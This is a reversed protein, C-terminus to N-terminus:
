WDRMTIYHVDYIIDGMIVGIAHAPDCWGSDITWLYYTGHKEDNGDYEVDVHIYVSEGCNDKKLDSVTITTPGMCRSLKDNVIDKLVSEILDRNARAREEKYEKM